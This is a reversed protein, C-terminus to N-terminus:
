SNTGYCSIKEFYNFVENSDLLNLEARTPKFLALNTNCSFYDSLNNGIFGTGGLIVIKKSM